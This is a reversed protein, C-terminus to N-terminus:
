EQVQVWTHGWLATIMILPMSEISEYEKVLTDDKASSQLEKKKQKGIHNLTKSLKQM